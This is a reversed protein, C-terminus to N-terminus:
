FEFGVNFYWGVSKTRNSYNFHLEVPGIPTNYSYGISSGWLKEDDFVKLTRTSNLGFNGVIKIYQKKAIQQYIKFQAVTLFPFCREIYDIGAFSLQQELYRGKTIGGITNCFFFPQNDRSIYRSSLTPIITTTKSLSFAKELHLNFVFFSPSSSLSHYFDYGLEVKMGKTPYYLSNLTEYEIQSHYDLYTVYKDWSYNKKYSFSSMTKYYDFSVAAQINFNDVINRSYNLFLEENIYKPRFQKHGNEYLLIDNYSIKNGICFTQKQSTAMTYKINLYSQRGGRFSLDFGTGKENHLNAKILISAIYESDFRLGVRLNKEQTLPAFGKYGETLNQKPLIRSRPLANSTVKEKIDKLSKLHAKAAEEGKCILTNLAEDDFSAATYGDVDVKIYVDVKKLKEDLESQCIMLMLQNLISTISYLHNEDAFESQTDVAIIYDAGMEKATEVALNDKFGGDILVKGDHRIPTFVLPIGMSARMARALNGSRIVEKESHVMDTAICAFPIPLSDFSLSDSLNRTLGKLFSSINRGKIFGGKLENDLPLSLIFKENDYKLPFPMKDRATKDSILSLWDNQRILSDLQQPTYGISYLGGVIAGISTGVVYDIPLGIDEIVKLAGVHAVGKAGGGSLVVAVKKDTQANLNHLLLIFLLLCCYRSSM